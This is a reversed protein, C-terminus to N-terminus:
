LGARSTGAAEGGRSLAPDRRTGLESGGRLAGGPGRLAGGLEDTRRRWSAPSRGVGHDRDPSPRSM